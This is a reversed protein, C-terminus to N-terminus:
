AGVPQPMADLLAEAVQVHVCDVEVLDVPGVGVCRHVLRGAGQPLQDVLALDSVDPDRVEADRLELLELACKRDLGHLRWIVEEPAVDLVVDQGPAPLAVHPDQDVPREGV